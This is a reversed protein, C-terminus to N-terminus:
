NGAQQLGLNVQSNGQRSGAKVGEQPENSEGAAQKSGQRFKVVTEGAVHRLGKRASVIRKSAVQRM